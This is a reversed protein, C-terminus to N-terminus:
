FAADLKVHITNLRYYLASLFGGREVMDFLLSETTTIVQVSGGAGASWELLEHQQEITCEDVHEIFLTGPAGIPLFWRAASAANQPPHLYQELAAIAEKLALPPGQLLANSRTQLILDWDTLDLTAGGSLHTTSRLHDMRALLHMRQITERSSVTM